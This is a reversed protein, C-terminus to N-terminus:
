RTKTVGVQNCYEKIECISCKPSQPTCINQGHKVILDNWLIWHNKSLIKQLEIETQEPTKTKIIGLRNSIRHVHIDVCIAPIDFALGLVLNATKRGVGPLNLLEEETKPVQGNYKEILLKSVKHLVKAKNKYFGIKFIIKELENLPIALIDQPSKALSLLAKCVNITATDKSRLSLLCCILILYPDKGYENTIQTILTPTFNKTEQILIAIIKKTTM